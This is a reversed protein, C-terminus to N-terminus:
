GTVAFWSCESSMVPMACKESKKLNKPPKVEKNVSEKSKDRHMGVVCLPRSKRKGLIKRGRSELFRDVCSSKLRHLDNLNIFNQIRIIIKMQSQILRSVLTHPSSRSQGLRMGKPMPIWGFAHYYIQCFNKTANSMQSQSLIM